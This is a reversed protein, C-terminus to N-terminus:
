EAIKVGVSSVSLVAPKLVELRDEFIAQDNKFHSTVPSSAMEHGKEGLKRLITWGIRELSWYSTEDPTWSLVWKGGKTASPIWVTWYM